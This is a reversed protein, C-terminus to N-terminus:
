QLEKSATLGADWQGPTLAGSVNDSRLMAASASRLCRVNMSNNPHVVIRLVWGTGNSIVTIL